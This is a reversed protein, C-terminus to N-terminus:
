ENAGFDVQLQEHPERPSEEILPPSKLEKGLREAVKMDELRRGMPIFRREFSAVASNYSEVASRLGKGTSALHESFVAARSYLERATDAIKEANEALSQQQWYIAVTRLLAVLTTPTALLVKQQMADTQIQADRQFAAALFPDGPLFLVVLDTGGNLNAAYERSALARIHKKLAVVHRDLGKDRDADNDANVADMYGTLPVKADVAIQRKGPLRVIMDPRKGDDVTTQQVFDCHENMGALEAVNKLAVEGWQGRFQSGELASVLSTTREGLSNTTQHLYNIQEKLSEYAGQRAKELEGTRQDLRSLTDKLPSLLLEIGMRRDDLDKNSQERTRALRQEALDLFQDTSGKLAKSALSHFADEMEKRSDEIFSRQEEAHKQAQEIRERAVALERDLEDKAQELPLVKAELEQRRETELRETAQSAALDSALLRTEESFRHGQESLQSRFRLKALLWGVILGLVAVLGFNLFAM